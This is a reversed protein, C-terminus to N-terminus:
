GRDAQQFYDKRENLTRESVGLLCAAEKVSIDDKVLERLALIARGYRDEVEEYLNQPRALRLAGQAEIKRVNEAM